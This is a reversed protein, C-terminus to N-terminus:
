FRFIYLGEIEVCLTYREAHLSILLNKRTVHRGRFENM